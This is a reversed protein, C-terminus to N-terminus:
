QVRRLSQCLAPHQQQHWQQQQGPLRGATLCCLEECVDCCLCLCCGAYVAAAEADIGQLM